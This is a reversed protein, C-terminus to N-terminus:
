VTPESRLGQLFSYRELGGAHANAMEVLRPPVDGYATVHHGDVATSFLAARAQMIHQTHEFFATASPYTEHVECSTGDESVYWDFRMTQTDTERALRVIEAAQAKFAELQGPRIRLQAHLELNSM